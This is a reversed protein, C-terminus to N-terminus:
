WSVWLGHKELAQQLTRLSSRGFNPMRLLDGVRLEVIDTARIERDRGIRNRLCAEIRKSLGLDELRLKSADDRMRALYYDPM